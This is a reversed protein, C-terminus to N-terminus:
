DFIATFTGHPAWQKLAALILQNRTLGHDKQWKRLKKKTDEPLADWQKNFEKMQEDTVNQADDLSPVEWVDDARPNVSRRKPTDGPRIPLRAIAERKLHTLFSLPAM